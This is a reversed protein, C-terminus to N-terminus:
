AEIRPQPQPLHRALDAAFTQPNIPKTMYGNFGGALVRDRDGVMAFATVAVIPVRHGYRTARIAATAEFGDMDPMQIDMLILDPREEEALRIGEAGSAAMLPEYGFARLLYEMLAMNDRNDEVILIRHGTM